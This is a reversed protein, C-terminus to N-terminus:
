SPSLSKGIDGCVTSAAYPTPQGNQSIQASSGFYVTLYWGGSSPPAQDVGQVVTTQYAIGKASAVLDNLPYKVAGQAQCTGLGIHQAHISGPALGSAATAVILTKNRPNYTLNAWGQPRSGVPAITLTTTVVAATIDGCALTTSGLEPPAAPQAAADLHISLATSPLLGGPAPQEGTVTTSITGASDATVVPFPVAVDEIAACSGKHIDVAYTAGPMFGGMQLKATINESPRDWSLAATGSPQYSLTVKILAPKDSM